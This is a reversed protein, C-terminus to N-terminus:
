EDDNSEESTGYASPILKGSHECHLHNDEYNIDCATVRWGDHCDNMISDAINRFESRATEFSIVGGDRCIFYLPYGGVSTFAGARLAAKFDAVSAIDRMGSSYNRRLPKSSWEPMRTDYLAGDDAVFLHDPRVLAGDRFIHVATCKHTTEDSMEFETGVFYRIIGSDTQSPNISTKYNLRSDAFMVRVYLSKVM